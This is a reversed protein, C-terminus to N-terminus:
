GRDGTMQGFDTPLLREGEKVGSIVEYAEENHMGVGVEQTRGGEFTVLYKSGVKRLFEHRVSLVKERKGTILDLLVSMGPKVRDDPDTLAIRVAYEVQGKGGWGWEDREKASLSIEKIIGNYSRDLIASAKVVASQGARIKVMDLEPVDAQVYLESLDDIRVLFKKADGDRVYEGEAVLVQVVVGGFPSRIPFAEERTALSPVVSVIPDGEKVRDGIKVHLRKVFGAYPPLIVTRRRPVVVGAVTVRQVLDGRAVVATGRGPASSAAALKRYASWGGAVLVLLVVSKIPWRRKM